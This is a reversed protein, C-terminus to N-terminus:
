DKKNTAKKPSSGSKKARGAEVLAKGDIGENVEDELDIVAGEAFFRESSLIGRYDQLLKIKM